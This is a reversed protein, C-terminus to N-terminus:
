YQTGFVVSIGHQFHRCSSRKLKPPRKCLREVPLAGTVFLVRSKIGHRQASLKKFREAPKNALRECCSCRLGKSNAQGSPKEIEQPQAKLRAAAAAPRCKAEWSASSQGVRLAGFGRLEALLKRSRYNQILRSLCFSPQM